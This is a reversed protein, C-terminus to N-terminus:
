FLLACMCLFSEGLETMFAQTSDLIGDYLRKQEKLIMWFNRGLGRRLFLPKEMVLAGSLGSMDGQRGFELLSQLPCLLELPIVGTVSDESAFVKVIGYLMESEVGASLGLWRCIEVVLSAPIRSELSEAVEDVNASVGSASHDVISAIITRTEAAEAASLPCGLMDRVICRYMRGWKLPCKKATDPRWVDRMNLVHKLCIGVHTGDATLQDLDCCNNKVKAPISIARALLGGLLFQQCCDRSFFRDKIAEGQRIKSNMLGHYHSIHTPVGRFDGQDGLLM